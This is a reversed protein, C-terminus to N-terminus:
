RQATENESRNGSEDGRAGTPQTECTLTSTGFLERSLTHLRFAIRARNPGAVRALYAEAHYGLTNPSMLLTLPSPLHQQNAIRQLLWQDSLRIGLQSAAQHFIMLPLSQLRRMRYQRWAWLGAIILVVILGIWILWSARLHLSSDFFEIDYLGQVIRHWPRDEAADSAQAIMPMLDIM